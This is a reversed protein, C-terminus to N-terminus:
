KGKREGKGKKRERMGGCVEFVGTEEVAVFVVKVRHIVRTSVGGEKRM